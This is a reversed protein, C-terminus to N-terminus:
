GRVYACTMGPWCRSAAIVAAASMSPFQVSGELSVATSDRSFQGQPAGGRPGIQLPKRAFAIRSRSGNTVMKTVMKHRPVILRENPAAYQSTLYTPGTPISGM